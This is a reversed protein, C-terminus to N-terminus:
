AQLVMCVHYNYLECCIRDYRSREEDSKGSTDYITPGAVSEPCCCRNGSGTGRSDLGRDKETSTICALVDDRRIFEWVRGLFDCGRKIIGDTSCAARFREKGWSYHSFRLELLWFFLSSPQVASWQLGTSASAEKSLRSSVHPSNVSLRYQTTM